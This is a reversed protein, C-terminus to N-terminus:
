LSVYKEIQKRDFNDGMDNDNTAQPEFNQLKPM